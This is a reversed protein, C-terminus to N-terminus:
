FSLRLGALLAPVSKAEGEREAFDATDGLKRTWAVGVYPAIERSNEYRLRLGLEVEGIGSGIGRAEVDEASWNVEARPAAILRQSLLLEYEAELRASLEGQGSLFTAADIEFFYPALTQIGVVAHTRSPDPKLDHRAGLQLETYPTVLRSYLLQVEAEELREEPDNEVLLSGETKLRARNLDGGIWGEADWNLSNEADDNWRHEFEDLRFSWFIADDMMQPPAFESIGVAEQAMLPGALAALAVAGCLPARM